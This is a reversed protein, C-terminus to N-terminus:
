TFKFFLKVLEDVLIVKNNYGYVYRMVCLVVCFAMWLSGDV